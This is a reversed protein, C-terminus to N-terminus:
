RLADPTLYHRETTASTTHGLNSQAARIAAIQATVADRTLRAIHDAYLGRLRHLPKKSKGVFPRLWEQPTYRFWYSRDGACNVVFSDPRKACERLYAALTPEIVSAAYPKGTKTWWEQETRDCLLISIVGERERIWDGRLASIEERRLGAFRALGVTLWLNVDDLTQWARLLSEDDAKEPQLYPTPLMVCAAADVRVDLGAAKYARIMAPIFLSRAARLCANIAINERRRTVYDFPLPALAAVQYKQWLEAGVERCTVAALEKGLAVRCVTRLRGINDRAVGAKARKPTSLYVAALAELTGGGKRSAVPDRALRELYEKARRKAEHLNTTGTRFNVAFAKRRSRLRWGSSEMVLPYDRGDHLVSPCNRTMKPAIEAM